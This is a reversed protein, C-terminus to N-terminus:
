MKHKRKIRPKNKMDCWTTRKNKWLHSLNIQLKRNKIKGDIKESSERDRNGVDKMIGIEQMKYFVILEENIDVFLLTRVINFARLIELGGQLTKLHSSFSVRSDPKSKTLKLSLKIVKQIAIM